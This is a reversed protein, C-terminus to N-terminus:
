RASLGKSRKYRVFSGEAIRLEQTIRITKYRGVM